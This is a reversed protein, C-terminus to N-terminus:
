TRLRITRHTKGAGAPAVLIGQEVVDFSVVASKQYPLLTYSSNFGVLDVTRQEDVIRFNISHEDLWTRLKKLFGRPVLIADDTQDLTKIFKREGYTPLGAREKVVYGINLINLEERLFSVLHPPLASKPVSIASGLTLVM